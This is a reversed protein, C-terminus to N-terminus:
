NQNKNFKSNIVVYHRLLLLYLRFTFFFFIYIFNDCKRISEYYNLKKKPIICIRTIVTYANIM